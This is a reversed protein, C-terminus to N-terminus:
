PNTHKYQFFERNREDPQGKERKETSDTKETSKISCNSGILVHNVTVPSWVQYYIPGFM